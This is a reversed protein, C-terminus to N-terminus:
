ATTEGSSKTESSQEQTAGETAASAPEGASAATQEPSPGAAEKEREGLGDPFDSPSDLNKLLAEPLRNQAWLVNIMQMMLVQRAGFTKHIDEGTVVPRGDIDVEGEPFRVNQEIQAKVWELLENSKDIIAQREAAKQEPTKRLEHEAQARQMAFFADEPSMNTTDVSVDGGFKKEGQAYDFYEREFAIFEDMSMRRVHLGLEVGDIKIKGGKHFQSVSLKSM